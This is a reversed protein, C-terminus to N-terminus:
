LKQWFVAAGDIEQLPATIREQARWDEIARACAPLIYDDVIIFGGPSVKHYLAELAEWTSEYMDGDLRLLAITEIPAVPLTDKFWGELFHVQRDLLGFRQFNARVEDASVALEPHTHHTDGADATFHEEDPKPLGQFSDAVWVTRDTVNYSRLIARMYICTGGRWVGTEILDGPTSAELIAEMLTRVNRLRARGIMTLGNQPWDRGILRTDMSYGPKSWPGMAPDSVAEGTLVMELLDLYKTGDINGHSQRFNTATSAQQLLELKALASSAVSDFRESLFRHSEVLSKYARDSGKLQEALSANAVELDRVVSSTHLHEQLTDSLSVHGASIANVQTKLGRLEETASKAENVLQGMTAEIAVLRADTEMNQAKLAVLAAATRRRQRVWPLHGSARHYARYVVAKKRYYAHVGRVGIEAVPRLPTQRVM